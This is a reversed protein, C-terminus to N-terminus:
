RNSEPLYKRLIRMTDNCLRIFLERNKLMSTTKEQHDKGSFIYGTEDSELARLTPIVGAEPNPLHLSLHEASHDIWRRMVLASSKIVGPNVCNVRILRTKLTTSLYISFLTLALKSQAFAGLQTFHNVAPFEYPLTVMRRTISTSFIIHGEEEIMPYVLLTLLATSLYNVQVTHEYGNPSLKSHRPLIGANNILAAV